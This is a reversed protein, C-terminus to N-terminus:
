DKGTSLVGVNGYYAIGNSIVYARYYYISRLAADNLTVSYSHPFSGPNGGAVLKPNAITPNNTSTSYCIGYESIGYSGGADVRGDFRIITLGAAGITTVRPQVPDATRFSQNAGYTTVGNSIVYARYHYTTAANLGGATITFNRPFSSVNDYESVRSNATTPNASTSWCIGYESISYSGGSTLTGSLRASNITIGGSGETSIGPQVVSSTSFSQQGGYTTVGNSIVYARYYYTTSPNLGGATVTFGRPFSTVNGYESVRSNATTPNASTSWCVGYETIAYSGAATLSGDLRASNATIGGAGGTTIQPQVVAPTRFNQEAGYTTINNSIVYARYYYVTNPNLGTATTSFSAPVTAVDGNQTFKSGATTPNTATGWVIGYETIPFTGKSLVTGALRASNVTLASSADTRIGPQLIDSTKFTMNSGYSVVNNAIVYARFNYTTAPSLSEANVTFARPFTTVDGNVAVKTTLSVTPDAATGWVIGYQTIAYTGKTTVTGRLRAFNHTVGESGDTRIGPQVINLTKFNSEEGYTTGMRTVAYSRVYYTTNMKLGSIGEGFGIPTPRTPDIAGFATKVGETDGERESYIFGHEQIDQNGAKSIASSLAASSITIDAVAVRDLEPAMAPEEVVRCAHLLLLICLCLLSWKFKEM